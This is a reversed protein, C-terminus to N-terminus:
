QRNFIDDGFAYKTYRITRVSFKNNDIVDLLKEVQYKNVGLSKLINKEKKGKEPVVKFIFNVYKIVDYCRHELAKYIIKSFGMKFLQEIKPERIFLILLLSRYEIPIDDIIESYYQLMTGKLSEKEVKEMDCSLFNEPKINSITTRIWQGANNLKCPYVKKGEIYIRLGDISVNNRVSKMHWRVVATNEKVRQIVTKSYIRDAFNDPTEINMDPLEIATLEDVKRQVPGDKIQLKANYNIFESIGEPNDLVVFNNAGVNMIPQGYLNTMANLLSTRSETDEVACKYGIAMGNTKSVAWYTDDNYYDRTFVNYIHKDKTIIFYDDSSYFGAPHKDNAHEFDFTCCLAMDYEKVYRCILKTSYSGLKTADIIIYDEYAEKVTRISDYKKGAYDVFYNYYTGDRSTFILMDTTLGLSSPDKTYGYYFFLINKSNANFDFTKIFDGVEKSKKKEDDSYSWYGKEMLENLLKYFKEKQILKPLQLLFDALCQHV